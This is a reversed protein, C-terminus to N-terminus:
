RNDIKEPYMDHWVLRDFAVKEWKTGPKGYNCFPDISVIKKGMALWEKVLYSWSMSHFNQTTELDGSQLVIRWFNRACLM